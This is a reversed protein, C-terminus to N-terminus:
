ESQVHINFFSVDAGSRHTLNVDKGASDVATVRYFSLGRPCRRGDRVIQGRTLVISSRVAM